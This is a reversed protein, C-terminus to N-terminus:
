KPRHYNVERATNLTNVVDCADAETMNTCILTWHKKSLCVEIIGFGLKGCDTVHFM